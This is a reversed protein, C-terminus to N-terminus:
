DTLKSASNALEGQIIQLAKDIRLFQRIDLDTNQSAELKKAHIDKILLEMLPISEIRTDTPLESRPKTAGKFSRKFFCPTEDIGLFDEM